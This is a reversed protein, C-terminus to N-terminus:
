KKKKGARVKAMREKMAQKKAPRGKKVPVVSPEIGKPQDIKEDKGIWLACKQGKHPNPHGKRPDRPRDQWPILEGSVEMASMKAKTRGKRPIATNSYFKRGNVTVQPM